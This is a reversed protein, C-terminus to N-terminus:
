LHGRANGRRRRFQQPNQAAQLTDRFVACLTPFSEIAAFDTFVFRQDNKLIGIDIVGSCTRIATMTKSVNEANDASSCILGVAGCAGRGFM